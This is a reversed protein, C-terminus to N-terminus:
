WLRSPLGSVTRDNLGSSILRCAQREGLDKLNVSRFTGVTRLTKLEYEDLRYSRERSRCEERADSGQGTTQKARAFEREPHRM